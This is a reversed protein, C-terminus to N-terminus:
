HLSGSCQEYYNLLEVMDGYKPSIRATLLIFYLNGLFRM